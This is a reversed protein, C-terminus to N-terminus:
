GIDALAEVPTAKAAKRGPLISALVAAVTAIAIVLILQPWDFAFVQGAMDAQKLVARVGVWGFFAGAAIGVLTGVGTLLLAEVILMRKLSKAQLGLARLLASERTREIVSLSLTNGVGVLAIAAAVGLLGTVIKLLMDFAQSLQLKMPLAGQLQAEQTDSELIKQIDGTIQAGKNRDTVSAFVLGSRSEPFVKLLQQQTIIVLGNGTAAKNARVKVSLDTTTSPTTNQSNYGTFDTLKINWTDGDKLNQKKMADPHVLAEGDALSVKETIANNLEPTYGAFIIVSSFPSTSNLDNKIVWKTDAIGKIGDVQRIKEVTDSKIGDPVKGTAWDINPVVLIDLPYSSDIKDNLTGKLSASGVGLTVILGVALMLATATAGARGPNRAANTAALRVTPSWGFIKGFLKLLAPVYIPAAGLVGLTILVSGAIATLIAQKGASGSFICLAIGSVTLLTCIVTRIISTKKASDASSVPRLAELPAVKLAKLLPILSAAITVLIGVVVSWLLGSTPISLGYALNGTLLHSALAALAIGAGVGIVSGILGLLIAEALFRRFVYGRSAGLTRLLGTQRRRQAVLITFTNAIIISGVLLAIAGFVMLLYKLVDFDNAASKISESQKEISDQVKIGDQHPLKDLTTRLSTIAADAAAPDSYDAIWETTRPHKGFEDAPLLPSIGTSTTYAYFNYKSSKVLGTVKFDLSDKSSINNVKIVDGIKVSAKNAYGESIAIENEKTPLSGESLAQWRLSESEPISYIFSYERKGSANLTVSTASVESVATNGASSKIADKVAAPDDFYGQVTVDAASSYIVQEKGMASGETATFVQVSTLFAISLAIATIVAVFRGPHLRLEKLAHRFM